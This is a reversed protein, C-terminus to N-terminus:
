WENPTGGIRKRLADRGRSLHAKVTGNACGMANAAQDLALDAVYHLVIAERQRRPLSRIAAVIDAREDLLLDDESRPSESALGGLRARLWRERRAHNVATRVIWGVVSEVDKLRAWRQLARAFAEQAADAALTHNGCVAFGARVATQFESEYLEEFRADIKM